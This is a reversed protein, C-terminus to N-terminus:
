HFFTPFSPIAMLSLETKDLAIAKLNAMSEIYKGKDLDGKVSANGIAAYIAVPTSIVMCPCAIVLLTIAQNLWM